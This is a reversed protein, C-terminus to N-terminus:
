AARRVEVRPAREALWCASDIAAAYDTLVLALTTAQPCSGRMQVAEHERTHALAKALRRRLTEARPTTEGTAIARDLRALQAEARQEHKTLTM